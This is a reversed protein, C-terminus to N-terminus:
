LEIPEESLMYVEWREKYISRYIVEIDFPLNDDKVQMYEQFAKVTKIPAAITFFNVTEGATLTSGRSLKTDSEMSVFEKYRPFYKEFFDSFRLNIREGEYIITVSEIIAPGLGKNVMNNRYIYSSDNTIEQQLFSLRPTVSLRSQKRMINTQYIFIILTLLSITMASLGLIRDTNWNKKM